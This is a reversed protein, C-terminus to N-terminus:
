DKLIELIKQELNEAGIGTLFPIGVVTPVGMDETIPMSGVILDAEDRHSNVESLSCQIIRYPIGHETLLQEIRDCIVTSTAIGSGCAVVITKM